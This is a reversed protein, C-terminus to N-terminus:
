NVQGIKRSIEEPEPSWRWKTPLYAMMCYFTSVIFWLISILVYVGTIASFNQTQTLIISIVALDVSLIQVVKTDVTNRSEMQKQIIEKLDAEGITLLDTEEDPKNETNRDNM